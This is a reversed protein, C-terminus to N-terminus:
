HLKQLVTFVLAAVLCQFGLHRWFITKSHHKLFFVTHNHKTKKNKKYHMKEVNKMRFMENTVGKSYKCRTSQFTLQNLATACLINRIYRCRTNLIKRIFNHYEQRQISAHICYGWFRSDM